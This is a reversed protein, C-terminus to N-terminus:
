FEFLFFYGYAVILAPITSFLTAYIAIKPALAIAPFLADGDNSIANGLQASFPIAGQIYLSTVIIQPGCGPLLGILVGAFPTFSAYQHFWTVLDFGSFHNFLEFIVFAAVAWTLVFNTDQVARSFWNSDCSKQEEAVFEQYKNNANTKAKAWTIIAILAFIGGFFEVTGEPLALFENPDIQFAYLLSIVIAPILIVKWLYTAAEVTNSNCAYNQQPNSQPEVRLYDRGFCLDILYGTITGTAVSIAILVLGDVPQSAILLFAADGMTATLVAVVSGFSFKGQIFQTIVIIAGGCGPIAGLFAAFGVQTIPHKAIPISSKRGLYAAVLHYLSLTALVFVGVQFFADSIVGFTLSRTEPAMILAAILVPFFYRWRLLIKDQLILRTNATQEIQGTNMIRGQM